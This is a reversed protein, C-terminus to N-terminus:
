HLIQVGRNEKSLPFSLCPLHSLGWVRAPSHKHTHTHTSERVGTVNGLLLWFQGGRQLPIVGGGGGDWRGAVGLRAANGEAGLHDPDCM